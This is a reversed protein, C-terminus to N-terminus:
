FLQTIYNLINQNQIESSTSFASFCASNQWKGMSIIPDVQSPDVEELLRKQCNWSMQEKRERSSNINLTLVM